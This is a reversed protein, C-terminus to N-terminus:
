RSSHISFFILKCSYCKKGGWIPTANKDCYKGWGWGSVQRDASLAIPVSLSCEAKRDINKRRLVISSLLWPYM